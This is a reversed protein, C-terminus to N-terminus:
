DVRHSRVQLLWGDFRVAEEKSGACVGTEIPCFGGTFRPATSAREDKVSTMTSAPHLVEGPRLGTAKRVVVVVVEPGLEVEVV